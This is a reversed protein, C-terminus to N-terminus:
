RKVIKKCVTGKDTTIEMLYTGSILNSINIATKKNFINVSKLKRGNMDFITVKSATSNELEINILTSAPNPYLLVHNELQFNATALSNTIKRIRNNGTDAVFITGDYAIAVGRPDYFRAATGTGDAFGQTGGALTTVVGNASIKQIRNNGSDTVYVNGSTDVAVGDIGRFQAATGTAGGAFTTVM